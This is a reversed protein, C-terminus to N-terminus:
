NNQHGNAKGWPYQNHIRPSILASLSGIAQIAVIKLPYHIAALLYCSDMQIEFSFEEGGKLLLARPFHNLVEHSTRWERIQVDQLWSTLNNRVNPFQKAYEELVYTNIVRM